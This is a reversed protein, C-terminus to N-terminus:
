DERFLSADPPDAAAPRDLAVDLQALLSPDLKRITEFLAQAHLSKEGDFISPALALAAHCILAAMAEDRRLIVGHERRLKRTYLDFVRAVELPINMQICVRTLRGTPDRGPPM